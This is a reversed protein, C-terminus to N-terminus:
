QVVLMGLDKITKSVEIANKLLESDEGKEWLSILKQKYGEDMRNKLVSYMFDEDKYKEFFAKDRSFVAQENDNLLDDLMTGNRMIGLGNNKTTNLGAIALGMGKRDKYIYANPNLIMLEDFKDKISISGLDFNLIPVGFFYAENLQLCASKISDDIDKTSLYGTMFSDTHSFIVKHQRAELENITIEMIKKAFFMVLASINSVSANKQQYGFGYALANRTVKSVAKDAKDYPEANTLMDALEIVEKKEENRDLKISNKAIDNINVLPKALASKSYKIRQTEKAIFQKRAVISKIEKGFYDEDIHRSIQNFIEPYFHKFDFYTIDAYLGNLNKRYFTNGYIIKRQRKVSRLFLMKAGALNSKVPEYLGLRDCTQSFYALNKRLKPFITHNENTDICYVMGNPLNQTKRVHSEIM